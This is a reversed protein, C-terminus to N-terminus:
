YHPCRYKHRRRKYECGFYKMEENNQYVPVGNESIDNFPAYINKVTNRKNIDIILTIKLYSAYLFMAYNDSANDLCIYTPKFHKNINM